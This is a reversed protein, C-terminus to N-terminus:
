GGAASEADALRKLMRTRPCTRSTRLVTTAAGKGFAIARVLEHPEGGVMRSSGATCGGLGVGAREPRDVDILAVPSSGRRDVGPVETPDLPLVM